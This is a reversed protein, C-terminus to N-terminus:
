SADRFEDLRMWSQTTHIWGAEWEEFKQGKRVILTAGCGVCHQGHRLLNSVRKCNPCFIPVKRDLPKFTAKSM